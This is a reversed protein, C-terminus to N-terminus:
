LGGHRMVTGNPDSVEDIVVVELPYV